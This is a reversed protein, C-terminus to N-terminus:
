AKALTEPDPEASEGKALVEAFGRLWELAAAESRFYIRHSAKAPRRPGAEELSVSHGARRESPPPSLLALVCAVLVLLSATASSRNLGM